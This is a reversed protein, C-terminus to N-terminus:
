GGRSAVAQRVAELLEIPSFPKRILRTAPHELVASAEKEATLVFVPLDRRGMVNRIHDLLEYGDMVPMALDSIVLACDAHRELCDLAQKGDSAEVVEYQGMELVMRVISRISENDEVVLVKAGM